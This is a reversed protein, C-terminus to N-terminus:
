HNILQNDVRLSDVLAKLNLYELNKCIRNKRWQINEITELLIPILHIKESEVILLVRNNYILNNQCIITNHKKYNHINITIILFIQSLKKMKHAINERFIGM